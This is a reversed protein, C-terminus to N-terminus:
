TETSARCPAGGSGSSPSIISVSRSNQSGFKKHHQHHENDTSCTAGLRTLSTSNKLRDFRDIDPCRLPQGRLRALHHDFYFHSRPHRHLAIEALCAAAADSQIVFVIVSRRESIPSRGADWGVSIQSLAIVAEPGSRFRTVKGVSNPEGRSRTNASRGDSPLTQGLQALQLESQSPLIGGCLRRKRSLFFKISM